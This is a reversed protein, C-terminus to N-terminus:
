YSLMTLIAEKCTLDKFRFCGKNFFYRLRFLFMDSNKLMVYNVNHDATTVCIKNKVSKDVRDDCYVIGLDDYSRIAYEKNNYKITCVYTSQGDVKEIFATNDNLYVNETSYKTYEDDEFAQIFGSELSAKSADENYHREFVLGKLRLFKTKSNVKKNIGFATYYPNLLSVSNSMMIVPLYRVQKGRGRALSKHISQFKRIEDSCYKNNESQFEDFLILEADSFFHSYKKVLDADNIAIAYGCSEELEEQDNPHVFLERFKGNVIGKSTMEFFPFFLARIDKFFRDEIENLEYGFRVLIVFKKKKKKFQNFAFKNFFTTKGDNRNSEVMYIEPKNGNIDMLSLLKTGDYFTSQSM